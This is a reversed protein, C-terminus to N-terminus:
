LLHKGADAKLESYVVNRVRRAYPSTGAGTRQMMMIIIIDDKPAITIYCGLWGDWGFEGLSSLTSCEGPNTLIRMLNGYSYGLCSDWNLFEQQKKTLQPTRLYEVTAPKLIQVGNYTGNNLLMLSFAAYDDVTSLLGAGGSEFFPAEDAMNRIGLNNGTYPVLNEEYAGMLRPQKDAPVYFDTDNMGLPKFLREKLFDSFKMKSAVEIVAGLVDACMSYEWREGPQFLLPLEGLKNAVDVTSLADKTYLKQDLEGWMFNACERYAKNGEAPYVIGATMSLLDRIQVARNAPVLSEGDKDVVLKTGQWGPLYKGVENFLDIVGDEVLIMAAAATIPKSMSFLRFIANRRVPENSSTNMVGSSLYIEEQGKKLVLLNAGSTFRDEVIDDLIHQLKEKM